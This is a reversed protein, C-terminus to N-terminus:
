KSNQKLLLEESTEGALNKAQPNAGAEVLKLYIAPLDNLAALHLPTNGDNDLADIKAGADLLCQLANQCGWKNDDKNEPYRTALIHLPTKGEHNKLELNPCGQSIFYQLDKDDSLGHVAYHLPSNGKDDLVDVKVGADLLLQFLSAFSRCGMCLIHLPTTGKHNAINVDVGADLMKKLAHSKLCNHRCFAILPTDGDQWDQVNVQTGATLLVDQVDFLYNNNAAAYFLANRGQADLRNPNAGAKLMLRLCDGPLFRAVTHLLPTKDTNLCFDINMGYNVFFSLIKMCSNLLRGNYGFDAPNKKSMQEVFLMGPSYNIPVSFNSKTCLANPDAGHQLLMLFIEPDTSNLAAFHLPSLGHRDLVKADAGRSLLLGICDAHSCIPADDNPLVSSLLSLSVYDDHLAFFLPTRRSWNRANINKVQQPDNLLYELAATFGWSVVKELLTTEGYCYYIEKSEVMALFRKIRKFVMAQFFPAQANNPFLPNVGDEVLRAVLEDPCWSLINMGKADRFNPDFGGMEILECLTEPNSHERMWKQFFCEAEQRHNRVYNVLFGHNSVLLQEPTQLEDAINQKRLWATLALRFRNRVILAQRLCRIRENGVYLWNYKKTTFSIATYDSMEALFASISPGSYGRLAAAPFFEPRAYFVLIDLLNQFRANQRGATLKDLCALLASDDMDYLRTVSGSWVDWSQCAQHAKGTEILLFFASMQADQLVIGPLLVDLDPAKIAKHNARRGGGGRGGRPKDPVDLGWHRAAEEWPEEKEQEQIDQEQIDQEEPMLSPMLSRYVNKVQWHDIAGQKELYDCLEEIYNM